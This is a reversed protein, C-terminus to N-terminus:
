TLAGRKMMLLLYGLCFRIRGNGAIAKGMEVIKEIIVFLTDNTYLASIEKLQREYGPNYLPLDIGNKVTLLDRHWELFVQLEQHIKERDEPWTQSLGLVAPYSARPVQILKSIVTEREELLSGKWYALAKGLSGQALRSITRIREDAPSQQTQKALWQCIEEEPIRRFQLHQCRSVITPLMSQVKTTTLFFHTGPVPEELTKLLANGAEPTLRDADLILWVTNGASALSASQRLQRIDEIKISGEGGLVHLSSLPGGQKALEEAVVRATTEKGVGEEGSFLYAHGLSNTSLARKLISVPVAQGIIQDLTM